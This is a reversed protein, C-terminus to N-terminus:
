LTSTMKMDKNVTTLVLHDVDIRLRQLFLSRKINEKNTQGLAECQIIHVRHVAEARVQRLVGARSHHVRKIPLTFSPINENESKTAVTFRCVIYSTIPLIHM